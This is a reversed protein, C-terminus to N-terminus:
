ISKERRTLFHRFAALAFVVLVPLVIILAFQRNEAIFSRRGCWVVTNESFQALGLRGFTNTITWDRHALFSRPAIEPPLSRIQLREYEAASIRIWLHACPDGQIPLPPQSIPDLSHMGCTHGCLSCRFHARYEPAALHSSFLGPSLTEPLASCASPCLMGLLGLM